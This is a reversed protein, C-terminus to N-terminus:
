AHPNPLNLLGHINKEIDYISPQILDICQKGFRGVGCRPPHTQNHVVITPIGLIASLTTWSSSLGVVLGANLVEKAQNMYSLNRLDITNEVMLEYRYGISCTECISNKADIYQPKLKFIERDQREAFSIWPHVLIRNTLKKKFKVNFHPNPLIDTIGIIGAHFPIWEIMHMNHPPIAAITCNLYYNYGPLKKAWDTQMWEERDADGCSKLPLYKDIPLDTKKLFSILEDLIPSGYGWTLHVNKGEAIWKAKLHQATAVFFLSDGIKSPFCLFARFDTKL